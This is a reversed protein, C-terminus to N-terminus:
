GASFRDSAGTIESGGQSFEWPGPEPPLDGLGEAGLGRDVVDGEGNRRSLGASQETGIAGTLRSEEAPEHTNQLCGLAVKWGICNRNRAVGYGKSVASNEQCIGSIPLEIASHLIALASMSCESTIALRSSPLLGSSQDPSVRLHAIYRAEHLSEFINRVAYRSWSGRDMGGAM